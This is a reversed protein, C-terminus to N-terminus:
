KGLWGEGRSCRGFCSQAKSNEASRHKILPVVSEMKFINIKKFHLFYLLAFKNEGEEGNSVESGDRYWRQVRQNKRCNPQHPLRSRESTQTSDLSPASQSTCLVRNKGTAGGTTKANTLDGSVSLYSRIETLIIIDAAAVSLFSSSSATRYWSQLGTFDM